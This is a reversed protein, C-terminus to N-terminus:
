STCPILQVTHTALAGSLVLVLETLLHFCGIVVLSLILDLFIKCIGQRTKISKEKMQRHFAKVINPSQGLLLALPGEEADMSNPEQTISVNSSPKTQRLLAQYAHFIDAKVNEEREKFRLNDLSNM